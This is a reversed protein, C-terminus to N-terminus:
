IGPLAPWSRETNKSLHDYDHLGVKFGDNNIKDARNFATLGGIFQVTKKMGIHLLSFKWVSHGFSFGYPRHLVRFRSRFFATFNQCFLVIFNYIRERDAILDNDFGLPGADQCDRDAINRGAAFHFRIKSLEVFKFTVLYEPDPIVITELRKGLMSGKRFANLKEFIEAFRWYPAMTYLYFSFPRYIWRKFTRLDGVARELLVSFKYIVKSPSEPNASSYWYEHIAGLFRKDEQRRFVDIWDVVTLTGFYLEDTSVNRSM